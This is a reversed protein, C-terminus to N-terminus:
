AFVAKVAPKYSRSLPIMIDGELIVLNQGYQIQQIARRNVIFSKHVRIFTDPLEQELKELTGSFPIEKRQMHLNLRKNSAEFFLINSYPIRRVDGRVEVSFCEDENERDAEEQSHIGALVEALTKDVDERNLPRWLLATPLVTPRIYTVPSVTGDALLVLKLEPNASRLAELVPVTGDVTVDCILLKMQGPDELCLKLQDLKGTYAPLSQIARKRMAFDLAATLLSAEARNPCFIVYPRM